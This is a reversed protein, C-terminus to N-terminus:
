MTSHPSMEFLFLQKVGYCATKTLNQNLKTSFQLGIIFLFNGRFKPEKAIKNCRFSFIIAIFYLFSLTITNCSEEEKFHAMM